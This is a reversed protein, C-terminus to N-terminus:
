PLDKSILRRVLESMSIGLRSAARRVAEKMEDPMGAGLKSSMRYRYQNMRWEGELSDVREWRTGLPRPDQRRKEPGRSSRAPLPTITGPRKRSLNHTPERHARPSYAGKRQVHEESM